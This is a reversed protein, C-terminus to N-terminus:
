MLHKLSAPGRLTYLHEQRHWPSVRTSDLKILDGAEVLESIARRISTLPTRTGPAVLNWVQSAGLTAEPNDTFLSLVRENQSGTNNIHLLM